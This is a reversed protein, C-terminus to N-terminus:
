EHALCPPDAGLLARALEGRLSLLRARELLSNLDARASDEDADALVLQSEDLDSLEGRGERVLMQLASLAQEEIGRSRRSLSKEATARSVDAEARRVALELDSERAARQAEAQELRARARARGDDFRGGTFVPIAISVGVAVSDPTFTLFYKDYDNYKGLRQYQASAEIVPAYRKSELRASHGLLEVERSLSHLQPDAARAASLNESNPLDPVALDPDAALVIPASGPWGILRKLELLDLDRDSDANLLKQRARASQLKARELDLETQRGETALAEVRRRIAEAADVRRQATGSVAQDVWCRAYAALVKEITEQCSRAVTGEVESVRAQAQYVASRRLPDYITQRIEISAISPVRGVITGPMGYTYGPNTSIWASPHYADNALRASAREGESEARVAALQPARELALEVAMRLTLPPPGETQGRAPPSPLAFIGIGVLLALLNRMRIENM